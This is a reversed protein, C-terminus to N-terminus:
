EQGSWQRSRMSAERQERVDDSLDHVEELAALASDLDGLRELCTTRGLRAVDLVNPDYTSAIAAEYRTLAQEVRGRRLNLNGWALEAEGKLAPHDRLVRRFMASAQKDRRADALTYAARLLRRGARHSAPAAAAAGQFRAAAGAPEGEELLLEGISELLAARAEPEGTTALLAELQHRADAPRMLQTAYVLAARRRAERRIAASPHRTATAQYRLVAQEPRGSSLAADAYSLAWPAAPHPVGVALLGVAGAVAAVGALAPGVGVFRRLMSLLGTTSPRMPPIM